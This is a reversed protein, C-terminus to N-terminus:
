SVGAFTVDVPQGPHLTKALEPAFAVEFLFSFKSRNERSYIVPPTYEPRPSIFRIKGPVLDARGDVRVFVDQGLHIQGLLSEPLFAKVTIRSPPLLSVVPRGAPVWEGPRFLVDSILGSEPSIQTKQSLEWEAKQLLAQQQKVREQSAKLLDSRAGLGATEIAAQLEAVKQLSEDRAARARDFDQRSTVGPLHSLKEQREYEVQALQEAAQAQKLQARLGDLESPRRGKGADELEFQAQQLAASVQARIEQEPTKELAFLEAGTSVEQGKEVSLSLLKGSVPASLYLFDGEVYGQMGGNTAPRCALAFAILGFLLFSSLTKM